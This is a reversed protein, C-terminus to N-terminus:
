RSPKSKQYKRYDYGTAMSLLLDEMGGDKERRLILLREFFDVFTKQLRAREGNRRLYFNHLSTVATRLASFRLENPFSDWEPLSLPRLSEYGLILEEFRELRYRGEFYCVANVTTALDCIFKGRCARDFDMIGVLRSGKFKMSEWSLNGHIIGKPLNNDLYGELYNVEDDLVRVISKLHAPLTKRVDQYLAAVRPFSYRNEVGKKYGRGILHLDALVHGTASLQAQTLNGVPVENGDINRSASIFRGDAHLYHQGGRSKLPQLCQFGHRRLFLLLEIDHKVENESKIGEISVIFKGRKTELIFFSETSERHLGTATCFEGLSFEEAIDALARAQPQSLVNATFAKDAQKVETSLM